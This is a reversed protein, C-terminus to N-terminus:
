QVPTVTGTAVVPQCGDGGYGALDHRAHRDRLLAHGHRGRHGSGRERLLLEPAPTATNGYVTTAGIAQVGSAAEKAITVNYGSKAVGNSKLDPSIFGPRQQPAKM